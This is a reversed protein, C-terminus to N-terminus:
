CGSARGVSSGPVLLLAFCSGCADRGKLFRGRRAGPLRRSEPREVRKREVLSAGADRGELAVAGNGYPVSRSSHSDGGASRSSRTGDRRESSRGGDQCKEGEDQQTSAPGEDARTNRAAPPGIGGSSCSCPRRLRHRAFREASRARQNRRTRGQPIRGYVGPEGSPRCRPSRRRHTPRRGDDGDGLVSGVSAADVRSELRRTRLSPIGGKRFPAM